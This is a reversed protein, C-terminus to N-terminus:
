REREMNTQRCRDTDTQRDREGDTLTCHTHIETEREGYKNTQTYVTHRDTQRETQRCRRM